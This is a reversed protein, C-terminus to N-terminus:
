KSQDLQKIAAQLELILSEVTKVDWSEYISQREKRIVFGIRKNYLSILIEINTLRGFPDTFEIM